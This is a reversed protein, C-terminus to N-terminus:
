SAQLMLERSCELQIAKDCDHKKEEELLEAEGGTAVALFCTMCISDQTSDPNIRRMFRRDSIMEGSWVIFSDIEKRKLRLLSRNKLAEATGGQASFRLIDGL